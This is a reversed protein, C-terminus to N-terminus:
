KDFKNLNNTYITGGAGLQFSSRRLHLVPNPLSFLSALSFQVPTFVNTSEVFRGRFSKPSLRSCSIWVIVQVVQIGIVDSEPFLLLNGIEATQKWELEPSEACWGMDARHQGRSNKGFHTAGRGKCDGAAEALLVLLPFPFGENLISPECKRTRRPRVGPLIYYLRLGESFKRSEALVKSKCFKRVHVSGGM